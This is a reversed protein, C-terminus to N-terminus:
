ALPGGPTKAPVEARVRDARQSREIVELRKQTEARFAALESLAKEINLENKM